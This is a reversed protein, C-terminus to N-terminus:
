DRKVTKLEFKKIKMKFNQSQNHKIKRRRARDNQKQRRLWFRGMAYHIPTQPAEKKAGKTRIKMMKFLKM